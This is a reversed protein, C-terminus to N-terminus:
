LGCGGTDIEIYKGRRTVGKVTRGELAEIPPDFTKLAAIHAVRVKALVHGTLREDLFRALSEVEPLEPVPRGSDAAAACM